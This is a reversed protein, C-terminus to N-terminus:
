GLIAVVKTAVDSTGYKPEDDTVAVGSCPKLHLSVRLTPLARHPECPPCCACCAAGRTGPGGLVLGSGAAAGGPLLVAGGMRGPTCHLCAACNPPVALCYLRATCASGCGNQLYATEEAQFKLDAAAGQKAGARSKEKAEEMAAQFGAMDVHLGSEEAM